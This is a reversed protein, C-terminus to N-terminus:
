SDSVVLLGRSKMSSILCSPTYVYRKLTGEGRPAIRQAAIWSVLM